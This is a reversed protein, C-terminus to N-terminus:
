RRRSGLSAELAAMLDGTDATGEVEPLEPEEGHAKAEIPALVRERYTDKFAKPDFREHMTDVLKGAM